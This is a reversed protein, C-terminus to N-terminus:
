VINGPVEDGYFHYFLTGSITTVQSRNEWDRDADDIQLFCRYIKLGGYHRAPSVGEYVIADFKGGRKHVENLFRRVMGNKTENFTLQGQKNVKLTQPDFTATGGPAASEVEGGISLVPWPFQKILLGIEEFGVVEFYADSNISKNGIAQIANHVGKLIQANTITM